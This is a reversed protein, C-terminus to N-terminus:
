QPVSVLCIDRSGMVGILVKRPIFLRPLGKSVIMKRANRDEVGM